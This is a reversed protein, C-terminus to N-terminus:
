ILIIVYFDAVDYPFLVWANYSCSVLTKYTEFAHMFVFAISKHTNLDIRYDQHLVENLKYSCVEM